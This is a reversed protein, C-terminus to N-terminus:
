LHRALLIAAMVAEIAGFAACKYKPPDDFLLSILRGTAAGAYAFGLMAWAAPANLWLAALGAVVFLGGVSARMESLGMTSGQPALDLAAATYRPALFGFAGFAVTLIAVILDLLHM